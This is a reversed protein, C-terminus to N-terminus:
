VREFDGCGLWERENERERLGWFVKVAGIARNWENEQKKMMMMMTKREVRIDRRTMECWCGNSSGASCSATYWTRSEMLELM